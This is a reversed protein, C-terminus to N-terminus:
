DLRHIAVVLDQLLILTVTGEVSVGSNFSHQFQASLPNSPPLNIQAHMAVTQVTPRFAGYKTAAKSRLNTTATRM